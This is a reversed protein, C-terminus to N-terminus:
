SFLQYSTNASVLLIPDGDMDEPAFFNRRLLVSMDQRNKLRKLYIWQGSIKEPFTVNGM